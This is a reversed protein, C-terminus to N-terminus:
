RVITVTVSRRCKVYCSLFVVDVTIIDHSVRSVSSEAASLCWMLPLLIMHCEASSAAKKDALDAGTSCTKLRLPGKM